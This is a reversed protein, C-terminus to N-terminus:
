FERNLLAHTVQSALIVLGLAMVGVVWATSSQVVVLCFIVLAFALSFLRTTYWRAKSLSITAVAFYPVMGFAVYLWGEALVEVRPIYQIAGPKSAWLFLITWVAGVGLALATLTTLVKSLLISIPSISRHITFAWTKMFIPVLFQRAALVMGLGIAILWIIPGCGALGSQTFLSFQSVNSGPQLQYYPVQGGGISMIRMESVINGGCFLLMALAALIMWPAAERLEKKFLAVFRM